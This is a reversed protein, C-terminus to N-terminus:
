ATLGLVEQGLVRAAISVWREDTEYGIAERGIDKAARLTTGSGTFPDLVLAAPTVELIRRVLPRPVPCPHATKDASVNKVQDFHWWDYVPRGDSGSEILAAVRKDTPNKYPQKVLALDPSCGFWSVLRWQRSTLHGNYVWAVCREPAQGIADALPFMAEAYHIVVSPPRCTAAILEAYEGTSLQDLYGGRGYDFGINYPPDTVVLGEIDRVSRGDGHYLTVYADSYYPTM